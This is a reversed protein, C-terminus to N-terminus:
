SSESHGKAEAAEEHRYLPRLARVDRARAHSPHVLHLSEYFEEIKRPEVFEAMRSEDWEWVEPQKDSLWCDFFFQLRFCWLYCGITAAQLGHENRGWDNTKKEFYAKVFRKALKGKAQGRMGDIALKKKSKKFTYDGKREKVIFDDPRLADLSDSTEGIELRAFAADRALQAFEEEQIEELVEGPRRLEHGTGHGTTEKRDKAQGSISDYFPRLWLLMVNCM